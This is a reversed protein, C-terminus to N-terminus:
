AILLGIVGVLAVLIAVGLGILAYTAISSDRAETVQLKAGSTEYQARRLDAIDTRIPDLSSQLAGRLAEATGQQNAAAVQVAANDVDRIANLRDAEAKRLESHHMARMDSIDRIHRLESRVFEAEALRLDDQRRIAAQVLDLVNKTPDLFPERYQGQEDM